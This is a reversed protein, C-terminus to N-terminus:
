KYQRLVAGGVVMKLVESAGVGIDMLRGDRYYREVAASKLYGHGGFIQLAEYCVTNVCDAVVLKAISTPVAGDEGADMRDAVNEAYLRAAELKMTMVAIKEQISYLAALPKGFAIRKNAYECAEALAAEAIGIGMSCMGLRGGVLGYMAVKFGGNEKGLLRDEEVFADKFILSNTDSSRCGLKDLKPGLTMGETERDVVFASIGKGGLEPATKFALVYLDAITGNTSFYKTGRLLYGGETKMATAQMSAADSGAAVESITYAALRKGSLLDPIWRDKQEETGFRLIADIAMWHVHFTLGVGASAKAIETAMREGAATSLGLGGLEEPYRAGFIGIERLEDLLETPFRNEEDLRRAIPALREKAFRRARDIHERERETYRDM